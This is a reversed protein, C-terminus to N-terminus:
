NMKGRKAKAAAARKALDALLADLAPRDFYRGAAMVAHIKRVAGVDRLPDADLLVVDAVKGKAISGFDDARQLFTAADATATRLAEAPTLGAKVFLELEDALWFPPGDTGALVHVGARHMDRVIQLEVGFAKKLAAMDAASVIKDIYGQQSEPLHEWRRDSMYSADDHHSWDRKTVLTPVQWTDNKKLTAFLRSAAQSDYSLAADIELRLFVPLDALADRPGKAREAVSNRGLAAAQEVLEKAKASTEYLVGTLHEMSRMGANSAETASIMLPVHGAFPISQKKCEEAIAFFEPRPLLGYVKIFDAGNRKHDGVLRRGDDPSAVALAHPWVPYPGDLVEGSTVIRPGVARGSEIERRQDLVRALPDVGPNRVGTIGNAILLPDIFARIGPIAVFHAHMDWLGPILFKGTGDVIEAEKPIPTSAPGADLIRAGKIVVTMSPQERGAITDIVTVNRFATIKNPDIPQAAASAALVVVVAFTTAIRV